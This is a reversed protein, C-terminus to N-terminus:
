SNADVAGGTCWSRPWSTEWCCCEPQRIDTGGSNQRGHGGQPFAIGRGSLASATPHGDDMACPIRSVTAVDGDLDHDADLSRGM